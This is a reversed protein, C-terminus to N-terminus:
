EVVVVVKQAFTMGRLREAIPSAEELNTLYPHEGTTIAGFDLNFAVRGIVDVPPPPPCACDTNAGHASPPSPYPPPPPATAACPGHSFTSSPPM